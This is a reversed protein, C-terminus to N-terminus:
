VNAIVNLTVQSSSGNTLPNPNTCTVIVIPTTSTNCTWNTGTFSTYTVSSPLTDIITIPAGATDPGNNTATLNYSYLNGKIFQGEITTASNSGGTSTKVISLDSSTATNLTFSSKNNAQNQDTNSCDLVADNPGTPQSTFAVTINGTAGSIRNTSFNISVSDGISLNLGTVTNTYILKGNVTSMVPTGLVGLSSTVNFNGDGPLISGEIPSSIKNPDVEISFQSSTVKSPGNNTIAGSASVISNATITTNSTNSTTQINSDSITQYQNYRVNDFTITPLAVQNYPVLVKSIFRLPISDSTSGVIHLNVSRGTSDASITTSDIKINNGDLTNPTNQQSLDIQFPDDMQSSDFHLHIDMSTLRDNGYIPNYIVFQHDLFRDAGYEFIANTPLTYFIPGSKSISGTYTTNATGASYGSSLTFTPTITLTQGALYASDITIDMSAGPPVSLGELYAYYYGTGAFVGTLKGQSPTVRLPSGLETAGYTYSFNTNTLTISPDNNTITIKKSHVVQPSTVSPVRTVLQGNTFTSIDSRYCYGDFTKVTPPTTAYSNTVPYGFSPTQSNAQATNVICQNNPAHHYYGGCGFYSTCDSANVPLISFFESMILFQSLLLGPVVFVVLLQVLNRFQKTNTYNM